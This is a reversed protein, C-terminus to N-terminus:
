NMGKARQERMARAENFANDFGHFVVEADDPGIDASMYGLVAGLLGAYIQARQVHEFAPLNLRLAPLLSVEGLRAGLACLQRAEADKDDDASM